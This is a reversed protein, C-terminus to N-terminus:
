GDMRTIRARVRAGPEPSGAAPVVLDGDGVGDLIEVWGDATLGVKVPRRKLRGADAVAVWPEGTGLGRVAGEPLVAAQARRGAEINVSLTMDPLLYAPPEPVALRVEVTGQAADVSPAILSVQAHFTRDPYADASVAAGAGLTIGELNDESPFVVVEVPGDTALEILTRGPQVVDGPEVERLLVTGAAPAVIRTQALRARAAELAARAQM